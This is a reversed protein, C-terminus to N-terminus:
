WNIQWTWGANNITPRFSVFRINGRRESEGERFITNWSCFRMWGKQYVLIPAVYSKVELRSRNLVHRANSASRETNMEMIFVSYSSKGKSQTRLDAKAKEEGSERKYSLYPWYCNFNGIREPRLLRQWWSIGRGDARKDECRSTINCTRKTGDNCLFYFGTRSGLIQNCRIFTM